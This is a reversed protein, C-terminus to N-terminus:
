AEPLTALFREASEWVVVQSGHTQVLSWDITKSWVFVVEAFMEVLAYTFGVDYSYSDGFVILRRPKWDTLVRRVFAKGFSGTGGTVLISKGNLDPLVTNFM